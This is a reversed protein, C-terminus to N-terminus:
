QQVQLMLGCVSGPLLSLSLGASLLFLSNAVIVMVPVCM